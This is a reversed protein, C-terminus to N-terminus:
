EASMPMIYLAGDATARIASIFFNDAKTADKGMRVMYPINAAIYMDIDAVAATGTPSLRIFCAQTATVMVSADIPLANTHTAAAATFTVKQGLGQQPCGRFRADAKGALGLLEGNSYNNDSM